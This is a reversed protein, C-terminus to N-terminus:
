GQSSDIANLGQSFLMRGSQSWVAGTGEALTLSGAPASWCQRTDDPGCRASTGGGDELRWLMGHGDANEAAGTVYWVPGRALVGRVETVKTEYAADPVARGRPDVSPLGARAPDLSLSYRWLRTPRRSGEPVAESAVLSDPSTTRDLAISGIRADGTLRYAGVAPLVFRAGGASWGGPVRGVATSDVDARQVRDVDYVYLARDDRGGATVLLKDGYWVMGAVPSSLARYDRGGDVPVALLAWTYALRDPDAADIFAVRAPGAGGSPAASSAADTGGSTGGAPGDEASRPRSWASVLVRRGDWRGDARDGPLAVAGPRWSRTDAAGFCYARTAAPATPLSRRDDAPCADATRLTHDAGALVEAVGVPRGMAAALRDLGARAEPEEALQLQELEATSALRTLPGPDDTVTAQSASIMTAAATLALATGTLCARLARGRRRRRHRGRHKM